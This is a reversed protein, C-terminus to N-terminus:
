RPAKCLIWNNKYLPLNSNKVKQLLENIQHELEAGKLYIKLQKHRSSKKGQSNVGFYCTTAQRGQSQSEMQATFTVDIHKIEALHWDLMTTLNPMGTNFAQV